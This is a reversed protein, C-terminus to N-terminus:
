YKALPSTTAAVSSLSTVTSVACSRSTHPAMLIIPAIDTKSALALAFVSVRSTSPVESLKAQPLM